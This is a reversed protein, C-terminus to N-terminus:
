AVIDFIFVLEIKLKKRLFGEKMRSEFSSKILGKALKESRENFRPSFTCFIRRKTLTLEEVIKMLLKMWLTKILSILIEFTFCFNRLATM